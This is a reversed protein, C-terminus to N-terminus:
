NVCVMEVCHTSRREERAPRKMRSSGSVKQGNASYTRVREGWLRCLRVKALRPRIVKAEASRKRKVHTGLGSASPDIKNVRLRPQSRSVFEERASNKEVILWKSQAHVTKNTARPGRGAAHPGKGERPCKGM